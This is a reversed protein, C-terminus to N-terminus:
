ARAELDEVAVGLAAALREATDRRATCAGREANSVTQRSVGAIRALRDQSMGHLLRTRKLAPLRAGEYVRLRFSPAGSCGLCAPAGRPMRRTRECLPCLAHTWDLGATAVAPAAM